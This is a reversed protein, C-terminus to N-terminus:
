SGLRLTKPRRRLFVALAAGAVALPAVVLWLVLTAASVPGGPGRTSGSTRFLAGAGAVATPALAALESDTAATPADTPAAPPANGGEAPTPLTPVTAVSSTAGAPAPATGAGGSPSSPIEAAPPRAVVGHDDLEPPREGKIYVSTITIKYGTNPGSTNNVTLWYDPATPESFRIREPQGPTVSRAAPDRDAFQTFFFLDLDDIAGGRTPDDDWSLEITVYFQDYPSLSAPAEIKLPITDCVPLTACDTPRPAQVQDSAPDDGVIAPYTRSVTRDLPVTLTDQPNAAASPAIALALTGAALLLAVLGAV